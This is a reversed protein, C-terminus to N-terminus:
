ANKTWIKISMEEIIDEYSWTASIIPIRKIYSVTSLNCINKCKKIFDSPDKAVIAVIDEYSFKFNGPYRWEREWSFDHSDRMINILSYYHIIEKHYEENNKLSKLSDVDKFHRDFENLLYKKLTTGDDNLYIAPNAGAKIM